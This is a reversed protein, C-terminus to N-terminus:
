STRELDIGAIKLLDDRLMQFHPCKRGIIGPSARELIRKGDVTKRYGRRIHRMFLESLHRSPPKVNDIHEPYAVETSKIVKDIINGGRLDKIKLTIGRSQLINLEQQLLYPLVLKETRGEVFLYVKM